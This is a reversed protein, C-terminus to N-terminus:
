GLLKDIKDNIIQSFTEFCKKSAWIGDWPNDIHVIRYNLEDEDLIIYYKGITLNNKRGNYINDICKVEKM